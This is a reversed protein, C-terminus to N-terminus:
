ATKRSEYTDKGWSAIKSWKIAFRLMESKAQAAKEEDGLWCWSKYVAMLGHGEHANAGNIVREVALLATADPEIFM